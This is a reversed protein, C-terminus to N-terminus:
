LANGSSSRSERVRTEMWLEVESQLWASSRSGIKIPRPFLGDRSLSYLQARKLGTRDEVAPLRLFKEVNM